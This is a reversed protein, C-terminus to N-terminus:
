ACYAIHCPGGQEVIATLENHM